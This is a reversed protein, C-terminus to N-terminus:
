AAARLAAVLATLAALDELVGPGIAASRRADQVLAAANLDCAANHLGEAGITGALSILIHSQGRVVPWDALALGRKLAQALAGLDAEMQTLIRSATDPGALALIHRLAAGDGILGTRVPADAPLPTMQRTPLRQMACLNRLM